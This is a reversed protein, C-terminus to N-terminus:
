SPSVAKATSLETALSSGGGHVLQSSSRRVSSDVIILREGAARGFARWIRVWSSRTM